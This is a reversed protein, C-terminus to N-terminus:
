PFSMVIDRLLSDGGWLRLITLLILGVTLMCVRLDDRSPARTGLASFVAFGMAMMAAMVLNAVSFISPTCYLDVIALILWLHALAAFVLWISTAWHIAPAHADTSPRTEHPADICQPAPYAMPQPAAYPRSEAAAGTICTATIADDAQELRSLADFHDEQATVMTRIRFAMMESSEMEDRLRQPNLAEKAPQRHLDVVRPTMKSPISTLLPTDFSREPMNLQASTAAEDSITPSATVREMGMALPPFSEFQHHEAM